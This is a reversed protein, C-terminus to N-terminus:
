SRRWGVALAAPRSRRALIASSAVARCAVVHAAGIATRGCRGCRREVRATGGDARIIAAWWGTLQHAAATLQKSRPTPGRARGRQLVRRHFAWLGKDVAYGGSEGGGADRREERGGGPRGWRGRRGRRGCRRRLRGGGLRRWRRWQCWRAPEGCVVRCDDDGAADDSEDDIEDPAAMPQGRAAAARRSGRGGRAASPRRRANAALANAARQAPGKRRPHATCRGRRRAATRCAHNASGRASSSTRTETTCAALHAQLHRLRRQRTPARYCLIRLHPRAM